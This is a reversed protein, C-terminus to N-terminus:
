NKLNINILNLVKCTINLEEIDINNLMESRIQNGLDKLINIIEISQETLEVLYARPDTPHPIRKIYNKSEIRKLTTSLNSAVMSTLNCLESQTLSKKESLILLITRQEATLGYPKLSENMKNRMKNKINALLLGFEKCIVQDKEEM